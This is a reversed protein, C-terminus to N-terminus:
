SAKARGSPHRAHATRRLRGAHGKRGDRHNDGHQDPDHGEGSEAHQRGIRGLQPRAIVTALVGLVIRMTTTKGAGNGGVFGTLRRPKVDFAVDDLVRRGGYSKTIGTLQLM